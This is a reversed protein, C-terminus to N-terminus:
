GALPHRESEDRRHLLHLHLQNLFGVHLREPLRSFEEVRTDVDYADWAENVLRPNLTFYGRFISSPTDGDHFGNM